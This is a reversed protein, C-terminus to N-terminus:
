PPARRSRGRRRGARLLPIRRAQGERDRRAGAGRHRVHRDEPEERGDRGESWSPRAGRLYAEMTCGACAGVKKGSLDEPTKATSATPVFFNTPTSYYPQTMYLVDMRDLAIAGSGYALDWRDGWNGGTVETWSPTVFCPEVGLGKAVLKGTEADYGTMQNATMQNPACKTTAKRTAGKVIFSQPPYAPDTFLVVTGRAEVQALKDSSPDGAPAVTASASPDTTAVASGSSSSGCGAALFVTAAVAAVTTLECLRSGRMVSRVWGHGIGQHGQEM